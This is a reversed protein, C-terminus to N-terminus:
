KNLNNIYDVKGDANINISTKLNDYFLTEAKGLKTETKYYQKRRIRRIPHLAM